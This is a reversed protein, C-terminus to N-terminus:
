VLSRSESNTVESIRPNVPGLVPADRRGASRLVVLRIREPITPRSSSLKDVVSFM